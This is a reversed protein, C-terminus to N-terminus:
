FPPKEALSFTRLIWDTGIRRHTVWIHLKTQKASRVVPDRYRVSIVVDSGATGQDAGEFQVDETELKASVLDERIFVMLKEKWDAPKGQMTEYLSGLAEVDRRNFSEVLKRTSAEVAARPTAPSISAGSDSGTSRKDGSDTKTGTTGTDEDAVADSTGPRRLAFLFEGGQDNVNRIPLFLPQAESGRMVAMRLREFLTGAPLYQDSNETLRAVVYRLFVSEDPVPENSGSTMAQRSPMQYLREMVKDDGADRTLSAGAFCADAILLVHRARARRIIANVDDSSIWDARRAKKADVPMWYGQKALEDWKGHGAFFIVLNDNPGLADALSDLANLIEGRKPNKLTTVDRADFRYRDILVRRLRDADNVPGKLKPLNPDSYDQVALLIAHFKSAALGATDVGGGVGVGRTDQAALRSPRM